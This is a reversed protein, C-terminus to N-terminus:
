FPPRDSEPYDSVTYQKEVGKEAACRKAEKHKGKVSLFDEAIKIDM